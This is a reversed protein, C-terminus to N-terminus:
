RSRPSMISRWYAMMLFVQGIEVGVNFFLLALPINNEPLGVETLVSALGLGMTISHLLTFENHATNKPNM